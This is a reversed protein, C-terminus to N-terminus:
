PALCQLGMKFPKVVVLTNCAKWGGKLDEDTLVKERSQLYELLGDLAEPEARSVADFLLSRNFIKVVKPPDASPDEDCSM